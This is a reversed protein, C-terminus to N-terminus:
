LYIGYEYNKLLGGTTMNSSTIIAKVDDFLYVKSHLKPFNKVSGDSLLINEIASIDLAGSYVSMLKFSTILYVKSESNKANLMEKCIDNKVFPSTIKISKRSNSVLELFDYKWPTTLVKM